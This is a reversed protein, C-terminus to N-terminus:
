CSPSWCTCCRSSRWRASSAARCTASRTRPRRRPPPSSTSGSSRSSCWRRRPCCGSCLRVVVARRRHDAAAAAAGPRVQHRGAVAREAPHVALPQQRQLLLLRRHDGAARGRGQDRHHGHQGPRVAQHGAGAGLHDGRRDAVAGWDFTSRASRQRDTELRAASSPSCTAWTCRGARPWWRPASRWNSCSTGASSGPSWSAWRRTPSPTRRHRRGAGHLRVGRLVHGGTRLRDRRDRLLDVGRARGHHGGGPRDPHLHRRRDGGRRRLGDPGLRVPDAQAQPRARRHGPDVARGVEDAVDREDGPGKARPRTGSHDGIPPWSRQQAGARVASVAHLAYGRHSRASTGAISALRCREAVATDVRLAPSALGDTARFVTGTGSVWVPGDGAAIWVSHGRPVTLRTAPPTPSRSRARRRDAAGATRRPHHRRTRGAPELRSLRFEAAPTPYVWEGPMGPDGHLVPVDGASFDLVQMLEAVDVHKPTLGGRLVNDSNAM